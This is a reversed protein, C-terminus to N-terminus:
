RSPHDLQRQLSLIPNGPSWLEVANARQESYKSNTSYHDLGEHGAGAVQAIDGQGAPERKCQPLWSWDPWAVLRGVLGRAIRWMVSGFIAYQGPEIQWRMKLIFNKPKPTGGFGAIADKLDQQLL